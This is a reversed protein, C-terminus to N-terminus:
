IGNVSMINSTHDSLVVVFRDLIKMASESVDYFADILSRKGLLLM